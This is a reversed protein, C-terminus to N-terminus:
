ADPDPSSVGYENKLLELLAELDALYLQREVKRTSAPILNRYPTLRLWTELVCRKDGVFASLYLELDAKQQELNYTLWESFARRHSLRLSRDAEEEGFTLAIGHHLYRGTNQDRLSTLYVLQGFLSPIQSLTRRWLDAAAGRDLRGRIATSRM